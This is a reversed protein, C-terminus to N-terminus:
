TAIIDISDDPVALLLQASDGCATNPHAAAWEPELEVGATSRCNELSHIGGVGAFPDLVIPPEPQNNVHDQFIELVKTPFKAPHNM